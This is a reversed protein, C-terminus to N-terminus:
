LAPLKAEEVEAGWCAREELRVVRLVMREPLCPEEVFGGLAAELHNRGLTSPWKADVEEDLEEWGGKSGRAAGLSVGYVGGRGLRDEPSM